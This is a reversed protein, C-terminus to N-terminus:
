LRGGLTKKREEVVEGGKYTGKRKRGKRKRQAGIQTEIRAGQTEKAGKQTETGVEKPSQGATM